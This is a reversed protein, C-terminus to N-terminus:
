ICFAGVDRQRGPDDGNHINKVSQGMLPNVFRGPGHFLGKGFNLLLGPRLEIGIHNRREHLQEWMCIASEAM